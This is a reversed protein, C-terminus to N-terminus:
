IEHIIKSSSRKIRERPINKDRYTLFRNVCRCYNYRLCTIINVKKNKYITRTSHKNKINRFFLGLIENRGKQIRGYATM